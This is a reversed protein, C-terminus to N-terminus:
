IKPHCIRRKNKMLNRNQTEVHNETPQFWGSSGFQQTREHGRKERRSERGDGEREWQVASADKGAPVACVELGTLGQWLCKLKLNERLDQVSNGSWLWHPDPRGRSGPRPVGESLAQAWWIIFLMNLMNIIINKTSDLKKLENIQPVPSLQLTHFRTCFHRATLWQRSASMDLFLHQLYYLTAPFRRPTKKFRDCPRKQLM